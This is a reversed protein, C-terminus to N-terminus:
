KHPVFQGDAQFIYCIKLRSENDRLWESIDDAARARQFDNTKKWDRYNDNDVFFCNEKRAIRLTFLDDVSQGVVDVVPTDIVCRQLCWFKDPIPNRHHTERKCVAHVYFGRSRYYEMATHVGQWSFKGRRHLVTEAYTHGINACNLVVQWTDRSSEPGSTWPVPRAREMAWQQLVLRRQTLHLHSFTAGHRKLVELVNSYEETKEPRKVYWWEAEDLPRGGERDAMNPDAKWALLARVADGAGERAAYHLAGKGSGDGATLFSTKGFRKEMARVDNSGAAQRFKKANWDDVPVFDAHVQPVDDWSILSNWAKLDTITGSFVNKRASGCKGVLLQDRIAFNPTRGNPEKEVIAGDRYIYMCGDASVCCLYSHLEGPTICNFADVRSYNQWHGHSIQFTLTRTGARGFVRIADVPEASEQAVAFCIVTSWDQVHDWAARFSVSFAGDFARNWGSVEKFKFDPIDGAVDSLRGGVLRIVPMKPMDQWSKICSWVFVDEIRGKFTSEDQDSYAGVLLRDRLERQPAWGDHHEAIMEGDQFIRMCGDASATCLYRSMEGITICGKADIRQHKRAPGHSIEFTLTSTNARNFVRIMDTGEQKGQSKSFCLVSGWYDLRDWQANFAISIDGGVECTGSLTDFDAARGSFARGSYSLITGRQEM